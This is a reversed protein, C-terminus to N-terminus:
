LHCRNCPQCQQASRLRSLSSCRLYLQCHFWTHPCALRCYVWALRRCFQQARLSASCNHVKLLQVQFPLKAPRSCLRPLTSCHEQFHCAVSIRKFSVILGLLVPAAASHFPDSAFAAMPTPAAVTRAGSDQREVRIGDFADQVQDDTLGLVDAAVDCATECLDVLDKEAKALRKQDTGQVVVHLRRWPALDTSPQGKVSFKLGNHKRKLHDINAGGPGALAEKLKAGAALVIDPLWVRCSTVSVGSM